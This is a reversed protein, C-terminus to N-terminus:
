GRKAPDLSGFESIPRHGARPVRDDGASVVASQSLALVLDAVPAGPGDRTDAVVPCDGAAPSSAAEAPCDHKWSCVHGLM